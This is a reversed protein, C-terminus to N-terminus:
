RRLWSAPDLAREGRRIEFYVAWRGTLPDRGARGLVQGTKVREGERVLLRSLHGYLTFYGGEHQILVMQGYGDFPGALRVKGVAVSRTRARAAPRFTVGHRLLELTRRGIRLNHGFVGVVPGRVPPKLRGRRAAFGGAQHMQYSLEAINRKLRQQQRSLQDELKARVRRSRRLRNLVTLQAERTKILERKRRALQREMRRGDRLRASLAARERELVKRESRFLALERADRRLILRAASIRKVLDTEGGASELVLRTLGGRSLKYLGRVRRRLHARRKEAGLVLAKIRRRAEAIRYTLQAHEHKVDDLQEEVATVQENLQALETLVTAERRLLRTLKGAGDAVQPVGVVLLLTILRPGPYQLMGIM